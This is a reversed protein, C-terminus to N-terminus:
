SYTDPVEIEDEFSHQIASHVEQVSRRQLSTSRALVVIDRTAHTPLDFVDVRAPRLMLMLPTALTLGVGSEVLAVSLATDSVIHREQPEIGARACAFRVAQGFAANGPPLIWNFSNAFESLEEPTSIASGLGPPLLMKFQESYVPTAVLGRHPAQPADPYDVSLAIDIDGELVANPMDSISIEFTQLGVQPATEALYQIMPLISLLAASGFVGVKVTDELQQLRGSLASAARREGEILPRAHVLLAVGAETLQLTRGNKDFLRTSVAAQLGAMQQSVAGVTYGLQKAASTMTGCEAVVCFTRLQGLTWNM